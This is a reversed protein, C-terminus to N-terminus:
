ARKYKIARKEFFQLWLFQILIQEFLGYIVNKTFYTVVIFPIIIVISKGIQM